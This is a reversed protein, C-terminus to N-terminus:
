VRDDTQWLLMGVEVRKLLKLISLKDGLRIIVKQLVSLVSIRM